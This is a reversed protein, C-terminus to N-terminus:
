RNYLNSFKPFFASDCVLLVLFLSIFLILVYVFKLTEAMNKTRQM